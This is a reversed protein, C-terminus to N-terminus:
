SRDIGLLQRKWHMPAALFTVVLSGVPIWTWLGGVTAWLALSVPIVMAAQIRFRRVHADTMPAKRFRRLEQATRTLRERASSGDDPGGYMVVSCNRM